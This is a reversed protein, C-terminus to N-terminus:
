RYVSHRKIRKWVDFHSFMYISGSSTELFSDNEWGSNNQACSSEVSFNHCFVLWLLSIWCSVSLPAQAARQTDWVELSTFVSTHRIARFSCTLGQFPCTPCPATLSIPSPQLHFLWDASVQTMVLCQLNNIGVGAVDRSNALCHRVLWFRSKWSIVKGPSLFTSVVLSNTLAQGPSGTEAAWKRRESLTHLVQCWIM